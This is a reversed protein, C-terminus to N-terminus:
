EPEGVDLMLIETWRRATFSVARAATVGADDGATLIQDDLTVEGEVLHLWASRGRSLAHVVHQGADLMASFVLADQHIRLAGRRADASAVVCLGGRRQAASFRKEEHGLEIEPPPPRLSIRLVHAWTSGSPNTEVPRAGRGVRRCQFEGAQIIGAHGTSDDYALAGDHVYTVSEADARGHLPMGAGPALRDEDLTEGGPFIALWADRDDERDLERGEARRLTIM